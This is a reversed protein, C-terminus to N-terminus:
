FTKLVSLLLTNDHTSGGVVGGGSSQDHSFQLTSSLGPGLLYSLAASAVLLDQTSSPPGDLTRVGYQFFVSSSLRPSLTHGWTLSGFTGSNSGLAGLSEASAQSIVKSNDNEVTATFTDRDLTYAGSVSLRRLRELNDQVGFFNSADYIPAGNGHDVPNGLADIDTTALANQLEEQNTTLGTSYRVYVRTRPSPALSGDITLSDLGDHHGYTVTLTSDANPVLRAGVAWIADTIRVPSAGSYKIDEYGVTALATITRTIAYGNDITYTDRHAGSLVGQGDFRTASALATANYRGFAEGTVFAAHANQTTTNQNAASPQFLGPQLTFPNVFGQNIPANGNASQVTRGIGYGVEATGIPGFRHVLYPAASFSYDQVTNNSSLTNFRTPGFGGGVAQQTALGRVDLFLTQPILTALARGNFEHDVRDQSGDSAYLYIQPSYALNVQLRQTDGTLALGPQLISILDGRAKGSVSGAGGGVAQANDTLEETVGASPTFQWAPGLTAPTPGGGAPAFAQAIQQDLAGPRVSSIGGTDGAGFGAAPLVSPGATIPGGSAIPAAALGAGSSGGGGPAADQAAASGPVLAAIALAVVAVAVVVVVM